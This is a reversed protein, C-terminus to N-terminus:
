LARGASVIVGTEDESSDFLQEDVETVPEQTGSPLSEMKRM